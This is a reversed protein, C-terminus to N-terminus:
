PGSPIYFLECSQALCSSFSSLFHIFPTIRENQRCSEEVKYKQSKSGSLEKWTFRDNQEIQPTKTRKPSKKQTQIPLLLWTPASTARIPVYLPCKHLQMHEITPHFLWLTLKSCMKLQPISYNCHMSFFFVM